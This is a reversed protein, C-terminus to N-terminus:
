SQSSIDSNFKYEKVCARWLFLALLGHLVLGDDDHAHQGCCDGARWLCSGVAACCV